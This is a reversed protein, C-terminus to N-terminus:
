GYTHNYIKKRGNFPATYPRLPFYPGWSVPTPLHCPWYTVTNEKITFKDLKTKETMSVLLTPELWDTFINRKQNGEQNFKQM